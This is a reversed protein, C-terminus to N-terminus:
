NLTTIKDPQNNELYPDGCKTAWKNLYRRHRNLEKKYAPNKALDNMEGPDNEMDFLSERQEGENYIWYKYKKSRIMRGEPAFSERNEFINKGQSLKNSVVIYEPSRKTKLLDFINNGPLGSPPRIGAFACISPLIDIGTQVLVDSQEQTKHGPPCIILPVRSSEEYFVTKQNWNHAGLMDGHDSLFIILTNEAKGSEKLGNIIKGIERDVKEIMRYYAWRYERWKAEDFDGVPFQPNAQISARMDRNIDTENYTPDHNPLLPPCKDPSAPRGVDGDPLKDGRAWECINHPNCFSAIALFPKDSESNIFGIVSAAILNDVGKDKVQGMYQFGHANKDKGAYPLHWKGVYGTNYGNEYFVRGMCPVIEPDVRAGFKNDQIGIEHPYRGTFMSSRSPVCLPNPCYAKTFKIGHEALYDMNPTNVYKNGIVNSMADASQQDTMIILINPQQGHLEGNLLLGGALVAYGLTVKSSTKM